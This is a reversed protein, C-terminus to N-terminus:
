HSAVAPKKLPHQKLYNVLALDDEKIHHRLWNALFSSLTISLVMKGADFRAVLETVEATLDQHKKLHAASEPYNISAMLTQEDRFHEVTYTALKKLTPALIEKGKGAIIADHLDNVMCFLEKHQRDVLDHGTRYSDDWQAIPM